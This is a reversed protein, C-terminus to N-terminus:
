GFGVDHALESLDVALEALDADEADRKARVVLEVVDKGRAVLDVELRARVRAAERM